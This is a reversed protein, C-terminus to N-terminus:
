KGKDDVCFDREPSLEDGSWAGAGEAGSWWEEACEVLLIYLYKFVHIIM